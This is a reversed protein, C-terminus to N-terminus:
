RNAAITFAGAAPEAPGVIEVKTVIARPPGRRCAALM